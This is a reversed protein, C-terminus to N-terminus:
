IYILRNYFFNANEAKKSLFSSFHTKKALDWIKFWFPFYNKERKLPTYFLVLSRMLIVFAQLDWFHDVKKIDKNHLKRKSFISIPKAIQNYLGYIFSLM